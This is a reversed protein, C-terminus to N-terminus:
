SRLQLAPTLHWGSVWEWFEEVPSFTAKWRNRALYLAPVKSGPSVARFLRVHDRSERVADSLRFCCPSAAAPFTASTITAPSAVSVVIKTTSVSVM